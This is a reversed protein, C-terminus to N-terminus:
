GVILSHWKRSFVVNVCYVLLWARSSRKLDAGGSLHGIIDLIHIFQIAAWCIVWFGYCLKWVSKAFYCKLWSLLMFSTSLVELSISMSLIQILRPQKVLFVECDRCMLCKLLSHTMHKMLASELVCTMTHFISIILTCLMHMILTCTCFWLIWWKNVELIATLPVRPTSWGSM